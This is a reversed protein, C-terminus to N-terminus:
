LLVLVTVATFFLVALRFAHIAWRLYKHRRQYQLMNTWLEAAGCQLARPYTLEAIQHEFQTFGNIARITDGWNFLFRQPVINGHINRTTRWTVTAGIAMSISSASFSLTVVALTGLLGHPISADELRRTLDLMTGAVLAFNATLLVSARTSTSARLRDYRDVNWQLFALLERNSFHPDSVLETPLSRRLSTM